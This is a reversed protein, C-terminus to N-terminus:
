GQQDPHPLTPDSKAIQKGCHPCCIRNKKIPEIGLNGCVENFSGWGWNRVCKKSRPDLWGKEFNRLFWDRADQQSGHEPMVDDKAMWHANSLGNLSRSSLRGFPSESEAAEIEALRLGRGYLQRARQMGLGVVEGIAAFTMGTERLEVIKKARARTADEIEKLKM